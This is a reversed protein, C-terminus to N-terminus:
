ENLENMKNLYKEHEPTYMTILRIVNVVDKQGFRVARGIAQKEIQDCNSNLITDVLIIDTVNLLNMGSNNTRSSLLLVNSTLSTSFEHLSKNIAYISGYCLSSDISYYKLMMYIFKIMNNHQSYIIIKRHKKSHQSTKESLNQLLIENVMNYIYNMKSGWMNTVKNSDINNQIQNNRIKSQIQNNQIKSQIQNSQIKNQITHITIDAKGILSGTVPCSYSINKGLLCQVCSNCFYHGNPQIAITSSVRDCLKCKDNYDVVSFNTLESIYGKYLDIQAHLNSIKRKHDEWKLQKVMTELKEITDHYQDIMSDIINTHTTENFESLKSFKSNIYISSYVDDSMTNVYIMKEMETPEILINDYNYNMLKIDKTDNLRFYTKIIDHCNDKNYILNDSIQKHSDNKCQLFNMLDYFFMIPKNVPLPTASLGWRYKSYIGMILKDNIEHIEDIIMREWSYTFINFIEKETGNDNPKHLKELYNQNNILSPTVIIIDYRSIDFKSIELYTTVCGIRMIHKSSSDVFKDFETVWQKVIRSPCIILTKGKSAKLKISIKPKQITIQSKSEISTELNDKTEKSEFSKINYNGYYLILFGIVSLTKGMGVPDCLVGGYLNITNLGHHTYLQPETFIKKTQINILYNVDTNTTIKHFLYPNYYYYCSDENIQNELDFMWKANSIQHDFLQYESKLHKEIFTKYNDTDYLPPSIELMKDLKWYRNMKTEEVSHKTVVYDRLFDYYKLFKYYNQGSQIHLTHTNLYIDLTKSLVFIVSNSDDISEIISCIDINTIMSYTKNKSDHHNCHSIILNYRNTDDCQIDYKQNKIYKFNSTSIECITICKVYDKNNLLDISLGLVM